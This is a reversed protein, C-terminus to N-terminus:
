AIPPPHGVIFCSHPHFVSRAATIRPHAIHRMLLPPQCPRLLPPILLFLELLIAHAVAPLLKQGPQLGAPGLGGLTRSKQRSPKKRTLGLLRIARGITWQSITTTHAANWRTAHEALTADPFAAVQARLEQHHDSTITPEVGGSPLQPTFTGTERRAALRRKLSALSVQFTSVLELRPMGRDHSALVRERLDISYAKM